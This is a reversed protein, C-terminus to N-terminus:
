LDMRQQGTYTRQRIKEFLEKGLTHRSAFVSHYITSGRTNVIRAVDDVYEYRISKLQERFITLLEHTQITSRGRVERDYAGPGIFRAFDSDPGFAPRTIFRRPYNTMFTILLDLRVRTTLARISAFSMQYATPDIFALGLTPRPDSRSVLFDVAPQVADNCDLRTILVRDDDGVRESLADVAESDADNLFIKSFGYDLARLPSGPSEARTAEDVCRGPGAFFDAYVLSLKQGGWEQDKMARTFIGMYQELYFLKEDSWPHVERAPLGDSAPVLAM